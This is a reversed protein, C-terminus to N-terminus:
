TNRAISKSIGVCVALATDVRSQVRSDIRGIYERFRSRDITRIQEVLAISKSKLGSLHPITVHTPLSRKKLNCSIPVIVITPSYKNGMENQVVLIPRIDAQESGIAPNLNAYFIDGRKILRTKM